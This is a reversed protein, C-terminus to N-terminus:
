YLVAADTSLLAWLYAVHVLNKSNQTQYVSSM